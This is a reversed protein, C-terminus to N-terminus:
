WERKRYCFISAVVGLLVVVAVPILIAIILGVAPPCFFHSFATFVYGFSSALKIGERVNGCFLSQKMLGM